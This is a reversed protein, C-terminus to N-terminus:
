LVRARATRQQAQVVAIATLTVIDKVQDGRQLIHVPRKMGVLIPGIVDADTIRRMLSVATAGADLNPFILVNAEGQLNNFPYVDSLISGDLAANANIEGDIRLNPAKQRVLEVAQRVVAARPHRAAGFTSFSLMAVRPEVDFNAALKATRMAIKALTEADPEINVAADAFFLVRSRTAVIFVGAAIGIEPIARIIQLPPRLVDAYHFSLGSVMGDADGMEVRVAALYNPNAVMEQAETRTVGKRHRLAYIRDACAQRLAEDTPDIIQVGDLDVQMETARAAIVDPKGLLMPTAIREEAVEHAARIVRPHDGEAYVIRRPSTRAKNFVVRLMERGKGMRADLRERYTQVELAVRSVGTQAAAVAVAPAVHLLVRPDLPKPILYEPGFTLAQVGYADAVSDPVDERALAALARAAAVKMEENIQTARCDLAGRFIFPFGLVNNVQNPYDSRGTAVIADPRTARAEDYGIEPDPNALAFVIPSPAMTLLMEPTVTGASSLGVFVDAGGMAEELTRAATAVALSRKIDNMHETRGAHIVGARDCVLINQPSAGLHIYFRATAVAAAGAGNFVIRVDELRKGVLELANLLAAASIIATGHQDDHFVPINMIEKLRREVEFCEPAKIDELNIGGFTPELLSIADVLRDVDKTNLELDMADIDAFRKFLLAKGEMVPKGALAGIDGLGLVATGNTIVAVLNGRATYKYADDPNAAIRRCPEAVGPTYALSLDRQTMCPKTPTIAMKGPPDAAHYELADADITM